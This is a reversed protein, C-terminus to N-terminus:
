KGYGRDVFQGMPIARLTELAFWERGPDGAYAQCSGPMGQFHGLAKKTSVKWVGMLGSPEFGLAYTDEDADASRWASAPFSTLVSQTTLNRWGIPQTCMSDEFFQYGVRISTDPLCRMTGVGTKVWLCYTNMMSDWWGTFVHAGDTADAYMAKIRSGSSSAGGGGPGPPGQDGKDGKDGKEGTDGKPGVMCMTTTLCQTTTSIGGSGGTGGQVATGGTGGTTSTSTGGAGGLKSPMTGGAGADPFVGEERVDCGCALFMLVAAMTTMRM